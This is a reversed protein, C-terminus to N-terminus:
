DGAMELLKRLLSDSPVWNPIKKFNKWSEMIEDIDIQNELDQYWKQSRIFEPTFRGGQKMWWNEWVDDMTEKPLRCTENEGGLPLILVLRCRPTKCLPTKQAVFLWNGKGHRNHWHLHVIGQPTVQGQSEVLSWDPSSKSYLGIRQAKALALVAESREPKNYWITM